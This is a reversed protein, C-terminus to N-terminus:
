DFNFKTTLKGRKINVKTVCTKLVILVSSVSFMHKSNKNRRNIRIKSVQTLHIAKSDNSHNTKQKKFQNKFKHLLWYYNLLIM